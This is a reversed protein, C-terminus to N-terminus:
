DTRPGILGAASALNQMESTISEQRSAQLFLTLEEILHEANQAARDLLQYRASHEAAASELMIDYLMTSLWLEVVRAYLQIPDTEIIPPWDTEVQTPVCLSPPLVRMAMPEYRGMGKYANYIVEVTDLEHREYDWLWESALRCCLGYPPLATVSLRGSWVPVHGKRRFAQQARTGLTM